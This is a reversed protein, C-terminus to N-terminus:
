IPNYNGVIDKVTAICSRPVIQLVQENLQVDTNNTPAKYPDARCGSLVIVIQGSGTGASADTMTLSMNFELGSKFLGYVSGNITGEGDWPLSLSYDRNLPVPIYTVQSGNMYPTRKINNNLKFNFSKASPITMGGIAVTWYGWNYPELTSATITSPTGSTYAVSQGIYDCTCETLGAETVAIEFSDIMCGKVTRIFNNGTGAAKQSDEITFSAFPNTTGSTFAYGANNGLETLVHTYPAGAGSTTIISGLALGFLKWNQPLYSLTGAASVLGDASISQNRTAGGNYRIYKVNTTEQVDSSQVLGIWQLATGTPTAYTGSEFFLGVQNSDSVYRAM